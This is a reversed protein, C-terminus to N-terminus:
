EFIMIWIADHEIRIGVLEDQAPTAELLVDYARARQEKLCSAISMANVCGVRAPTLM